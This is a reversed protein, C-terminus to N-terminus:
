SILCSLSLTTNVVATTCPTGTPAGTSFSSITRQSRACLVLFFDACLLATPCFLPIPRASCYM